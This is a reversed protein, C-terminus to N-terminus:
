SRGAGPSCTNPTCWGLPATLFSDMGWGPKVVTTALPAVNTVTPESNSTDPPLEPEPRKSRAPLIMPTSERPSGHPRV